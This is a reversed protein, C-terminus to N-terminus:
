TSATPRSNSISLYRLIHLGLCVTSIAKFYLAAIPKTCLRSSYNVCNNRLCNPTPRTKESIVASDVNRKAVSITIPIQTVLKSGRSGDLVNVWSGMVRQGM